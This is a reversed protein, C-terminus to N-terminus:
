SAWITSMTPPRRKLFAWRETPCSFCISRIQTRISNTTWNWKAPVAIEFYQRLQDADYPDYNDLLKQQEETPRYTVEYMYYVKDNSLCSKRLHTGEVTRETDVPVQFSVTSDSFYPDDEKVETPRGSNAGNNPGAGSSDKKNKKCGQLPLACTMALVLALATTKSVSKKM